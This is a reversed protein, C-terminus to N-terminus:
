LSFNILLAIVAINFFQLFTIKKFTSMTEDNLTYHKQYSSMYQFILTAAINIASIVNPAATQLFRISVFSKFWENCYLSDKNVDDVGTDTFQIDRIDKNRNNFFEDYCYCHMLGQEYKDELIIDKHASTKNISTFDCTDAIVFKDNLIDGVDQFYIIMIFAVVIVFVALINVLYGRLRRMTKSFGMNQWQINDPM